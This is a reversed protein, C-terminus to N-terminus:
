PRLDLLAKTPGVTAVLEKMRSPGSEDGKLHQDYFALTVNSVLEDIPQSGGEFYGDDHGGGVITLFGGPAGLRTWFERDADYSLTPDNDGHVFLVPVSSAREALEDSPPYPLWVGAFTTAAKIRPDACCKAAVTGFTTIAGFSQGGLGIRDPNILDALELPASTDTTAATIVFSEDASQAPYDDYATGGPTGEASLPFNPAIVVYGASAWWTLTEIYDQAKRTSGHAFLIVPWPGPIATAGATPSVDPGTPEGQAPYLVLTPLTRSPLEPQGGHAPTPRSEDVYTRETSGVVFTGAPQPAEPSRTPDSPSSDEATTPTSSGSRAPRVSEDGNGACGMTLMALAVCMSITM